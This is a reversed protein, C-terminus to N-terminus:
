HRCERWGYRTGDGGVGVVMFSDVCCLVKMVKYVAEEGEEKDTREM